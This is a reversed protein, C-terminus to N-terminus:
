YMWSFYKGAVEQIVGSSFKLLVFENTMRLGLYIWSQFPDNFAINIFGMQGALQDHVQDSNHKLFLYSIVRRITRDDINQNLRKLFIEEVFYSLRRIKIQPVLAVLFM